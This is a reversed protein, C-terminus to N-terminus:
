TEDTAEGAHLFKELEGFALQDISLLCLHTVVVECDGEGAVMSHVSVALELHEDQLSLQITEVDVHTPHTTLM